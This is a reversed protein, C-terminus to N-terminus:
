LSLHFLKKRSEDWKKRDMFKKLAMAGGAAALLGLGGIPTQTPAGPFSPQALVITSFVIIFLLINIGRM